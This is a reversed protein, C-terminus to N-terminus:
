RGVRKAAYDIWAGINKSGEEAIYDYEAACDSLPTVHGVPPDTVWKPLSVPDSYDAYRQWEWKWGGFGDPVAVKEYLYYKANYWPHTQIKGIAMYSLPNEGRTHATLTKHHRISNLHVALLGKGDIIARAIEYRVWRRQWTDSGILVCVASTYAVGARILKKLAEDGSAKRSEWLSSDYFSRMETSSPHTIKWANRVVNVRMIDDFHFSFFAKRKTTAPAAAPLPTRYLATGLRTVNNTQPNIAAELTNFPRSARLAPPSPAIGFPSFLNSGFQPNTVGSGFSGSPKSGLAEILAALSRASHVSPEPPKAYPSLNGFASSSSDPLAGLAALLMNKSDFPNNSM